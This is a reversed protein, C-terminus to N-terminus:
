KTGGEAQSLIPGLGCQCESGAKYCNLSHRGYKKLAELLAEHSNVAHIVFEANAKNTELHQQQPSPIFLAPISHRTQDQQWPITDFIAGNIQRWPTPTHNTKM